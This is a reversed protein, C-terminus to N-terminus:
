TIAFWRRMTAVRRLLLYEVLLVSLLAIGFLPLVIGLGLMLIAVVRM